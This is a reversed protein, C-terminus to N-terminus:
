GFKRTCGSPPAPWSLIATMSAALGLAWVWSTASRASSWWATSPCKWKAPQLPSHLVPWHQRGSGDSHDGLLCANLWSVPPQDLWADGGAPLLADAKHYMIQVSWTPRVGQSGTGRVAPKTHIKLAPRNKFDEKKSWGYVILQRLSPQSYPCQIVTPLRKLFFLNFEELSILQKRKVFLCFSTKKSQEM